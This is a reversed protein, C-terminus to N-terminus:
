TGKSRNRQEAPPLFGRRRAEGVLRAASSYSIPLGDAVARTPKGEAAKYIAAVERLRADKVRADSPRALRFAEVGAPVHGAKGGFVETFPRRGPEWRRAAIGIAFQICRGVPVNRIERPSIEGGEPAILRISRCRPGNDDATFELEISYPLNDAEVTADWRRPLVHGPRWPVPPQSSDPRLNARWGAM